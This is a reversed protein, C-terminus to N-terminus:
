KFELETVFDSECQLVFPRIWHAKGQVEPFELSSIAVRCSEDLFIEPYGGHLTTEETSEFLQWLKTIDDEPVTRNKGILFGRITFKYDDINFIEKVTGRNESIATRTINKVMNIAITCAEITIEIPESKGNLIKFGKLEVPFWVDQGFQGQKNFSINKKSYHTYGRPTENIPLGCYLPDQTTTENSGKPTVYYPQKGFYEKYIKSLDFLTPM